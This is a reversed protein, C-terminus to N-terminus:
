RKSVAVTLTKEKVEFRFAGVPRPFRVPRLFEPPFSAAPACGAALKLVEPDKLKAKVEITSEDLSRVEIEYDPMETGLGLKRRVHSDPIRRPLEMRVVYSEPTEEIRYVLGYRRNREAADEALILDGHKRGEKKFAAIRSEITHTRRKLDAIHEAARREKEALEEPTPPPAGVVYIASTPCVGTVEDNKYEAAPVPADTYAVNKPRDFKFAKPFGNNCAECGICKEPDVMFRTMGPPPTLSPDTATTM